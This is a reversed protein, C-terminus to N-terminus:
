EVEEYKEFDENDAERICTFGNDAYDRYDLVIKENSWANCAKEEAEYEDDAEIIVYRVLIEEVEVIYKM